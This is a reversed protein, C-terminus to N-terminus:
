ADAVPAGGRVVRAPWFNYEYADDVLRQTADAEGDRASAYRWGLAFLAAHLLDGAVADRATRLRDTPVTLAFRVEEDFRSTGVVEAYNNPFAYVPVGRVRRLMVIAELTGDYGLADYVLRAFELTALVHGLTSHLHIGSMETGGGDAPWVRQVAAASSVLGWTNLEALAFDSGANTLVLASEHQSVVADANPFGVSRWPVRVTRALELVGAPDRLPAVPFRPVLALQLTAGVGGPVRRGRVPGPATPLYESAAFQEFRAAARGVLAERREVAVRRREFLHLLEDATALRPEFTKSYEDTRVYAGKRNNLFHPAEESEPVYVLYCVKGEGGPAPIADSVFPHILPAIGQACRQIVTQKYNPQPDVGGLAILRGDASQAEAGIILYGGFTNAFGSLKKLTEEPGPIDRKFELRVNEVAGTALLEELDGTTLRDIPTDYISM